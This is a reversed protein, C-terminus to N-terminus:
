WNQPNSSEDLYQGADPQTDGDQGMANELTVPSYNSEDKMDMASGDPLVLRGPNKPKSLITAAAKPQLEPCGFRMACLMLAVSDMEDPSSGSLRRKHAEKSEVALRRGKGQM